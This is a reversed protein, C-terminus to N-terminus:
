DTGADVPELLDHPVSLDPPVPPAGGTPFACNWHSTGDCVCSVNRDVPDMYEGVVCCPVGTVCTRFDCQEECIPGLERPAGPVCWCYPAWGGNEM